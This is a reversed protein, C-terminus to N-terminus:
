VSWADFFTVYHSEFLECIQEQTFHSNNFTAFLSACAVIPACFLMALTEANAQKIEGKEIGRKFLQKIADYIPNKFKECVLNTIQPSNDSEMLAIRWPALIIPSKLGELSNDLIKKAQERTSIPENIIREVIQKRQEVLVADVWNEFLEEKSKFYRYVIPKTVNIESAIDAMRTGSYGNKCFLKTAAELILDHRSVQGVNPVLNQNEMIGLCEGGVSM